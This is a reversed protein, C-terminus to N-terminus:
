SGDYAAQLDAIVIKNMSLMSQMARGSAVADPGGILGGLVSPIVQWSVGFRDKLWGCRSEEGGDATLADWYRDIEDQTEVTVSFSIAETFNNSSASNLSQFEVGDLVFSVGFVSGPSPSGDPFRSVNTVRSNPFVSVYLNAAEEAESRFWLFPSITQM